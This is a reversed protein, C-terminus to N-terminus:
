RKDSPCHSLDLLPQVEHTCLSQISWSWWNERMLQIEIQRKKGLQLRFQKPFNSYGQKLQEQAYFQLQLQLFKAQQAQKQLVPWVQQLYYHGHGSMQPPTTLQPNQWLSPPIIQQLQSAEIRQKSDVWGLQRQLQWTAYYPSLAFILGFIVFGNASIWYIWAKRQNKWFRFRLM